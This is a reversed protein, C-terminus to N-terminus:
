SAKSRLWIEAESLDAFYKTNPQAITRLLLNIGTRLAASGDGVMAVKDYDLIRGLVAVARVAAMDAKGIGQVNDLILVPKGVQRLQVIINTTERGMAEVSPGTQDGVVEIHIIGDKLQVRNQHSPKTPEPMSIVILSLM